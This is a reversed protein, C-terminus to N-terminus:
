RTVSYIHIPSQASGENSAFFMTTLDSSVWPAEAVTSLGTTGLDVPVGGTFPMDSSVRSSVYITYDGDSQLAYWLNLDDDTM